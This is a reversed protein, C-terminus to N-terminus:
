QKTGLLVDKALMKRMIDYGGQIVIDMNTHHLEGAINELLHRGSLNKNEKILELLRASVPNLEMFGVKDNRDRYVIIYTPQEPAEEPLNDPSIAHVPYRYSLPWALLSLVPRGELLDGEPDVGEWSIERPDISVAYEVWEYHALELIFPPDDDANREHELYKLFEQTVKPFLPTHSKHNKLFDRIMPHWRDDPMIKRLVPFLNGLMREINNYVLDRYIKMRRSEIDTPAPQNEPDRIHRTFAYQVETFTRPKGNQSPKLM